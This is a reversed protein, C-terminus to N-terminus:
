RTASGEFMESLIRPGPLLFRRLSEPAFGGRCIIADIPRTLHCGAGIRKHLPEIRRQWRATRADDSLGHELFLFRGGPKLVRRIERVAAVADPISCLTWTSVAVDFRDADFPLRGDASVGVREVPFPAAAIRAAVRDRLADLPDVATLTRVSAPYHRLNLGTGFGIELVDGHADALLAARLRSLEEARMARDMLRSFLHREYFGSV